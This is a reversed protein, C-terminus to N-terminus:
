KGNGSIELAKGLSWSNSELDTLRQRILRLIDFSLTLHCIDFSIHGIIDKLGLRFIM